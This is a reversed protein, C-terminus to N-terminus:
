SNCMNNGSVFSIHHNKIGPFKYNFLHKNEVNIEYKSTNKM